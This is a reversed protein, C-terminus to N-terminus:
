KLRKRKEILKQSDIDLKVNKELRHKVIAKQLRKELESLRALLDLPVPDKKSALNLIYVNSLVWPICLTSYFESSLNAQDAIHYITHGTSLVLGYHLTFYSYFAAQNNFHIKKLRKKERDLDLISGARWGQTMIIKKKTKIIELETSNIKSRPNRCFYVISSSLATTLGVAAHISYIDISPHSDVEEALFKCVLYRFSVFCDSAKQRLMYLKCAVILRAQHQRYFTTLSGATIPM